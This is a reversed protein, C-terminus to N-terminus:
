KEDNKMALTTKKALKPRMAGAYLAGSLNSSDNGGRRLYDNMIIDGDLRRTEPLYLNMKARVVGKSGLHAFVITGTSDVKEVIGIHTFADDRKGNRNRDTTNHFFVIDGAQLDKGKVEFGYSSLGLWIASVGNPAIGYLQLLDLGSWHFIFSIYGSCDARYSRKNVSPLKTLGITHAIKQQLNTYFEANDQAKQSAFAVTPLLFLFFRIVLMSLTEARM